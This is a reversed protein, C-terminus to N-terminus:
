KASLRAEADDIRYRVSRPLLVECAGDERCLLQETHGPTRLKFLLGRNTAEASCHINQECLSRYQQLMDSFALAHPMAATTFLASAMALASRTKHILAMTM